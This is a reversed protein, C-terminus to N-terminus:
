APAAYILVTRLFLLYVTMKTRVALRSNQSLMPSLKARVGRANNLTSTVHDNFNLHRDLRVGLYKVTVTWNIPRGELPLSQCRSISKHTFCIAESKETYDSGAMKKALGSAYGVPTTVNHEDAM